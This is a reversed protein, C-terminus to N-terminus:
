GPEQSQAARIQGLTRETRGLAERYWQIRTARQGGALIEQRWTRLIPLYDAYRSMVQAEFEVRIALNVQYLIKGGRIIAFALEIPAQVLWVVDLSAPKVLDALAKHLLTKRQLADQGLNCLVGLDYDSKPGPQGEAQSGFLYVLSVEPFNELVQPLKNKLFSFSM